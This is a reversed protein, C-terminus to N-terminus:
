VQSAFFELRTEREVGNRATFNFSSFLNLIPSIWSIMLRLFAPFKNLRSSMSAISLFIRDVKFNRIWGGIGIFKTFSSMSNMGGEIGGLAYWSMRSWTLDSVSSATQSGYKIFWSLEKM